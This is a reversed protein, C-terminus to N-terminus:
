FTELFEVFKDFIEGFIGKFDFEGCGEMDAAVRNPGFRTQRPIPIHSEPSERRRELLLQREGAARRAAEHRQTPPGM